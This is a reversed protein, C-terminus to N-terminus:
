TLPLITLGCPLVMDEPGKDNVFSLSIEQRESDEDEVIIGRSSTGHHGHHRHHHSGAAARVVARVLLDAVDTKLTCTTFITSAEVTELLLVARREGGGGGGGGGCAQRVEDLQRAVTAPTLTVLARATSDALRHLFFLAAALTQTLLVAREHPSLNNLLLPLQSSSPSPSGLCEALLGRQPSTDFAADLVRALLTADKTLTATPDRLNFLQIAKTSFNPLIDRMEIGHLKRAHGTNVEFYDAAATDAAFQTSILASKRQATAFAYKVSRERLSALTATTLEEFSRTGDEDDDDGGSVCVRPITGHLVHDWKKGIHQEFKKSSLDRLIHSVAVKSLGREQAERSWDLKVQGVFEDYKTFVFVLPVGPAALRLGSSFFRTELDSVSRNEESAVCYWICHIRNEQKISPASRSTLFDCVRNYNSDDGTGFNLCTHIALRANQGHLDLEQEIDHSPSFADDVLKKELNVGFIKTFLERKTSEPNGLVLIRFKPCAALFESPPTLM